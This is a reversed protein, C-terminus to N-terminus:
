PRCTHASELNPCGERQNEVVLSFPIGYSSVCIIDQGQSPIRFKKVLQVAYAFALYRLAFRGGTMGISSFYPSCRKLSMHLNRQRGTIHESTRPFYTRIRRESYIQISTQQNPVKGSIRHLRDLLLFGALHSVMSGCAATALAGLSRPGTLLNLPFIQQNLTCAIEGQNPRSFRPNSGERTFYVAM